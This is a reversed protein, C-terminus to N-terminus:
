LASGCLNESLVSTPLKALGSSGTPVTWLQPIWKTVDDNEQGKGGEEVKVGECHAMRFALRGVGVNSDPM